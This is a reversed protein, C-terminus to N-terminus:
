PQGLMGMLALRKHVPMALPNKLDDITPVINNLNSNLRDLVGPQPKNYKSALAQIEEPSPQVDFPKGNIDRGIGKSPGSRVPQPQGPPPVRDTGHAQNFTKLAAHIRGDMEPASSAEKYIQLSQAESYGYEGARKVFGAVFAQQETYM